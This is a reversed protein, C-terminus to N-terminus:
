DEEFLDPRRRELARVFTSGVLFGLVFYGVTLAFVVTHLVAVWRPEPLVLWHATLLLAWGAGLATAWLMALRMVGKRTEFLSARKRLREERAVAREFPDSTRTM